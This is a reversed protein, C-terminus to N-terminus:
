IRFSTAVRESFRVSFIKRSLNLLSWSCILRISRRSSSVWIELDQVLHVGPRYRCAIGGREEIVRDLLVLLFLHVLLHLQEDANEELYGLQSGGQLVGGYRSGFLYIDDPHCAAIVEGRCEVLHNGKDDLVFSFPVHLKDGPPKDVEVTVTESQLCALQHGGHRDVLLGLLFEQTTDTM